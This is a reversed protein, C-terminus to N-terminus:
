KNIENEFRAVQENTMIFAKNLAEWIGDEGSKAREIAKTLAQESLYPKTPIPKPTNETTDFDLKNDTIGFASMKLYRETYTVCGGLQQAINTAKIEPIATAMVSELKEGSEIDYITLKGYVGLSDRLLDFTTLLQNDECVQSVLAEIQSPTFYDYKSFENRGEKKIKSRKIEAKAKAIKQIIM